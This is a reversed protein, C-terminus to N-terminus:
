FDNFENTDEDEDVEEFERDIPDSGSNTRRNKPRQWDDSRQQTNRRQNTPGNDDSGFLNRFLWIVLGLVVILWFYRFFLVLGGGILYSFMFFLLLCGLTSCGTSYFVPGGRNRYFM